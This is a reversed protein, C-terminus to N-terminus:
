ALRRDQLYLNMLNILNLQEQTTLEQTDNIVSQIDTIDQTSLPNMTPGNLILLLKDLKSMLALRDILPSGAFQSQVFEVLEKGQALPLKNLDQVGKKEQDFYLWDVTKTVTKTKRVPKEPDEPSEVMVPEFEVTLDLEDYLLEVGDQLFLEKEVEIDKTGKYIGGLHSEDLGYKVLEDRTGQFILEHDSAISQAEVAIQKDTLRHNYIFYTM